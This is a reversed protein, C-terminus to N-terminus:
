NEAKLAPTIYGPYPSAADPTLCALLIQFASEMEEEEMAAFGM